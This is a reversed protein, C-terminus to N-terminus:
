VVARFRRFKLSEIEYSSIGQPSNCAFNRRNVLPLRLSQSRVYVREGHPGEAIRGRFFEGVAARGVATGCFVRGACGWWCWVRYLVRGACGGDAADGTCFDGLVGSFVRNPCKEAHLAFINVCASRVPRAPRIYERMRILCALRFFKESSSLRRQPEDRPRRGRHGLIAAGRM